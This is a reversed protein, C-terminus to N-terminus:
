VTTQVVGSCIYEVTSQAAGSWTQDVAAQKKEFKPFFVYGTIVYSFYAKINYFKRLVTL